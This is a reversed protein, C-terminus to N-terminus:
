VDQTRENQMKEKAQSLGHGGALARSIDPQHQPPITRYDLQTPQKKTKTLFLSLVM